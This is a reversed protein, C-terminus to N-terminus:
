HQKRLILEAVLARATTDALATAIVVLLIRLVLFKIRKKRFFLVLCYFIWIFNVIHVQTVFNNTLFNTKLLLGTIIIQLIILMLIAPAIFISIILNEIYNLKPRSVILWLLFAILPFLLIEIFNNHKVIFTTQEGGGKFILDVTRLNEYHMWDRVFEFVLFHIAAWILFLSLPKFYKKRKGELYEGIVIDPRILLKFSTNLFGKEIHSFFHFVEEILSRFTLKEVEKKQGCNPCFKESIFTGCNLCTPM